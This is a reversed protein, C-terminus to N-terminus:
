LPIMNKRNRFWMDFMKDFSEFIDDIMKKSFVVEEENLKINRIGDGVKIKEIWNGSDHSQEALRHTEGFFKLDYVDRHKMSYVDLAESFSAFVAEIIEILVLDTTSSPRVYHYYFSKYIFERNEKTEEGWIFSTLSFLDNGIDSYGLENLDEIYWVWHNIDEECHVSIIREIDNAPQDIHMSSLLDKFGMIFFLMQPTFAMKEGKSISPDRLWSLFDCRQIDENKREIISLVQEM